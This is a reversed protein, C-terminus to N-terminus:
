AIWPSIAAFCSAMQRRWMVVQQQMSPPFKDRGPKVIGREADAFSMRRLDVDQMCGLRPMHVTVAGRDVAAKYADREVIPRFATVPTKGAPVVGENLIIATHQPAFVAELDRLYTLDDLDSGLVHLLVPVIGYRELFPGLDMDRSWQKLM